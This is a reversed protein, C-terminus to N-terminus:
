HQLRADALLQRTYDHSPARLVGETTGQEVISGKFLVVVRDSIVRALGLDHTIFLMALERERQLDGLLDVIDAQVSVDLASTVEDCILLAPEVALARALAVRQRQGGSLEHPMAGLLDATLGVREALEAARTRSASRSLGGLRRAALAISNGVARRPNLSGGPNQFVYQVSAREPVARRTVDRALQRGALRISGEYHPHLGAVARAITTKGSGSEGVLAVCEGAAVDFGVDYTAPRRGYRASLGDVTLLTAQGRQRPVAAADTRPLASLLRRTYPHKAHNLLEGAPMEEVVSGRQMIAIRDACSILLRLDHSVFAVATGEREVLARILEVIRRKSTVDLGTTPEDMIVAVPSFAFALAIAVRQQQGGSLQHPFRRLFEDTAPLGVADMLEATRKACDATSGHASLVERFIGHLRMGPNLSSSPDQPVYSVVRGRISRLTTSTAESLTTGAVTVEGHADLGPSRYGLMSLGLTSKGSGTEGAVGLIQGRELSVTVDDLIAVGTEKVMVDLGTVQVVTDSM